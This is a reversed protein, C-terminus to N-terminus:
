SAGAPPQDSQPIVVYLRTGRGISSEINLTGGVLEVREKLSLLGLGGQPGERVLAERDFGRGNDIVALDVFGPKTEVRVVVKTASAHRVANALAEQTIRYLATEVESSLRLDAADFDTIITPGAAQLHSKIYWRLTPVLGFDDLMVPRLDYVLLKIEEMAHKILEVASNVQKHAEIADHDQLAKDALDLRILTAALTQNTEDHLERGLRKREEEISNVQKAAYSLSEAELRRCMENFSAVLRRLHPDSTQGGVAGGLEGKHVAELARSLDALVRSTSNLVLFNLLLTVAVGAIALLLVLLLAHASQLQRVAYVSLAALAAVIVANMILVRQMIPRTFPNLRHRAPAARTTTEIM